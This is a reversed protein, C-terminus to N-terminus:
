NRKSLFGVAESIGGITLPFMKQDMLISIMRITSTYDWHDQHVPNLWATKYFYSQIKSLWKEGSEDNWHEISGGANTLEYPAM